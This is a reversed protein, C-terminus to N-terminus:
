FLNCKNVRLYYLGPIRSEAEKKELLESFRWLVFPFHRNHESTSIFKCGSFIVTIITM